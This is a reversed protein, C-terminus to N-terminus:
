NLVKLLEKISILSHQKLFIGINYTSPWSDYNSDKDKSTTTSLLNKVKLLNLLREIGLIFLKCNLLFLSIKDNQKYIIKEITSGTDFFEDQYHLTVGFPAEERLLMYFAPDVGKYVPLLGPHINLCGYKPIDLINKNILQNFHASLLYDAKYIRITSELKNINRTKLIDIKESLLKNKIIKKRKSFVSILSYGTTILFLYFTYYLGVKKLLKVNDIFAYGQKRLVRTSEIIAVVQIHSANLLRELVL